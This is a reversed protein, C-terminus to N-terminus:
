NSLLKAIAGRLNNLTFPKNLISDVPNESDGLEKEYATIMLIPQKPALNKIGVALENGKMVPMELDTTVLDFQGKTFLDLAEAGNNAETVSHGDFELMMRFAERVSPEDDVLLIRKGRIIKQEM